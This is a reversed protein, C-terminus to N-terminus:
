PLPAAQAELMYFRMSPLPDEPDDKTLTDPIVTTIGDEMLLWTGSSLDNRYYISYSPGPVGEWEIRPMGGVIKISTIHLFDAPDNPNTGATQEQKNTDRDNDANDTPNASLDGFHIDEWADLLGDFDTDYSPTGMTISFTRQVTNGDPDEAVVPIEFVHPPTVSTTLFDVDTVLANGNITFYSAYPNTEIPELLLDFSLDSSDASWQHVEVALTNSGQLLVGDAIVFTEITNDPSSAYAEYLAAAAM